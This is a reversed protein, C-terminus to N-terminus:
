YKRESRELLTDFNEKLTNIENTFMELMKIGYKTIHYYKRVRGNRELEYTSLCGQKELRRIIPYLTSESMEVFPELNQVIKYGYSDNRKILALVYADLIGKKLQNNMREGRIYVICYMTYFIFNLIKLNLFM